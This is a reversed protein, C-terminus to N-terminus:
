EITQTPRWYGEWNYKICQDGVSWWGAVLHRAFGELARYNIADPMLPEILEKLCPKRSHLDPVGLIVRRTVKDKTQTAAAPEYSVRRRGLLLVEYPKRWVADIATVPEGVATTKLWVWEEVLEVGWCAFIGDKGLVLERVQAKNTIWIGVLCDTEMLMDLDMGMVLDYVSNLSSVIAYTSDATKHTRKVSRNPWPPDLLIFDFKRRTDLHEAQARIAAHFDTLNACDCLYFSSKQPIRFSVNPEGTSNRVTLQSPSQMGYPSGFIYTETADMPMGDFASLGTKSVASPVEDPSGAVHASDALGSAPSGLSSAASEDVADLKRKKAVHQAKKFIYRPLHWPGSHHFRVQDLAQALLAEYEHHLESDVAQGALAQKAMESKPENIAYPTTIPETSAIEDHCPHEPTGQAAAISWPTDIVTVTHDESRWLISSPGQEM